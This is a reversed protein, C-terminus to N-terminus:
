AISTTKKINERGPFSLILNKQEDVVKKYAEKKQLGTLLKQLGSFKM